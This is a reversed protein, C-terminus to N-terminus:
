PLHHEQRAFVFVDDARGVAEEIARAAIGTPDAPHPDVRGPAPAPPSPGQELRHEAPAAPEPHFTEPQPCRTVIQGRKDQVAAGPEPRGSLPTLERGTGPERDDGHLDLHSDSARPSAPMCTSTFPTRSNKSTSPAPRTGSPVVIRSFGVS